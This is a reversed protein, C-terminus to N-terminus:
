YITHTINNFRHSKYHAGINQKQRRGKKKIAEPKLVCCFIFRWLSKVHCLSMLLACPFHDHFNQSSDRSKESSSLIKEIYIAWLCGVNYTKWVTFICRGFLSICLECRWWRQFQFLLLYKLIVETKCDTVWGRLKNGLQGFVASFMLSLHSFKSINM